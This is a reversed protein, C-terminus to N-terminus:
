LRPNGRAISCQHTSRRNEGKLIGEHERVHVAFVVSIQILGTIRTKHIMLIAKLAIHRWGM